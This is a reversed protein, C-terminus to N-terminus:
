RTLGADLARLQEPTGVNQWPGTYLEGSARGAAITERYYPKLARREGRPLSRFMRTDYVGINGFTYRASGELSLL